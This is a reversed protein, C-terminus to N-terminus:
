WDFKIENKKCRLVEKPNHKLDTLNIIVSETKSLGKFGFWIKPPITLRLYKKENVQIKKFNNFKKSYFVFIVKGSIVALNLTAKKHYKWAKIKGFRIKSFYAEGFKWARSVDDKRLFRMVNGEPLKIIKPKTIKIKNLQSKDM